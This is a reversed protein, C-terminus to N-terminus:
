KPTFAGGPVSASQLYVRTPLAGHDDGAREQAGQSISASHFARELRVVSPALLLVPEAQPHLGPAATADQGPAPALPPGADGGSPWEVESPLAPAMHSCGAIGFTERKARGNFSPRMRVPNSNARTTWCPNRRGSLRTTTYTRGQPGVVRAPKMHARCTPPATTRLLARRTSLSAQRCTAGRTGTPYSMTKM